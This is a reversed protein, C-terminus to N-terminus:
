RSPNFVAELLAALRVGGMVVSKLLVAKNEAYYEGALDASESYHLWVNNCNLLDVGTAWFEPCMVTDIHAGLSSPGALSLHSAQQGQMAFRASTAARDANAVPCATWAPAEARWELELKAHLAQAMYDEDGQYDDRVAKELMLSDWVSHLNTTRRGFHAVADNGGRDRGSLHLPQHVDQVLHVLFKLAEIPTFAPLQGHPPPPSPAGTPAPKPAPRQPRRRRRRPSRSELMSEEEVEATRTAGFGTLTANQLTETFSRIASIVCKGDPCDRAYIYSCAHPPDDHADSYHLPGTGSYRPSRKIEDAWSSVRAIDGNVEPLLTRLASKTQDSLQLMTVRAIRGWAEVRAALSLALAAAVILSLIHKM